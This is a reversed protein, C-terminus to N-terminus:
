PAGSLQDTMCPHRSVFGRVPGAHAAAYAMIESDPASPSGLASWHVATFGDENLFTVWTPGLDMDILIKVGSATAVRDRRGAM